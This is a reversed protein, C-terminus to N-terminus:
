DLCVCTNNVELSISRVYLSQPSRVEIGGSRWFRLSSPSCSFCLPLIRSASSSTRLVVCRAHGLCIPTGGSFYSHLVPLTFTPQLKEESYRGRAEGGGAGILFGLKLGSVVAAASQPAVRRWAKFETFLRSTALYVVDCSPM